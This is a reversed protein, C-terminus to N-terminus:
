AVLAGDLETAVDALTTRVSRLGGGRGHHVTLRHWRPAEYDTKVSFHGSRPLANTLVAKSLDFGVLKDYNGNRTDAEFDSQESRHVMNFVVKLDPRKSQDDQRDLLQNLLTIGRLSYVDPHMPALVADAAEFACMTLFTATPNTDFVILDYHNRYHDVSRTFNERITDLASRNDVFAYKSLEFQGTVLDLVGDPGDDDFIPRVLKERPVPTFPDLSVGSWNDAPSSMGLGHLRSKEFLSIVSQDQAASADADMMPFFLQTLNYQPDLDVLLIRPRTTAQLAGSLQAAVTTKGVGGKLNMVSLVPCKKRYRQKAEAILRELGGVSLLSHKLEKGIASKFYGNLRSKDTRVSLIALGFQQALAIEDRVAADSMSSRSVLLIMFAADRLPRAASTENGDARYRAAIGEHRLAEHIRLLEDLDDAGHSIYAHSM